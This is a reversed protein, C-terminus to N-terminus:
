REVVHPDQRRVRRHDVVREFWSRTTVTSSPVRWPPAPCAQHDRRQATTAWSTPRGNGVVRMRPTAARTGRAGGGRRAAPRAPGRRRRAPRAGERAEQASWGSNGRTTGSDGRARKTSGTYRRRRAALGNARHCRGPPVWSRRPPSSRRALPAVLEAGLAVRHQAARGGLRGEGPRQQVDVVRAHEGAAAAALPEERAGLLEVRAAAPRAEVGALGPVIMSRVRGSRPRLRM